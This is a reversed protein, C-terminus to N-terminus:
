IVQARNRRATKKTPQMQKRDMAEERKSGERMRGTEKDTKSQEFAKESKM